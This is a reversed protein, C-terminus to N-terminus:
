LSKFWKIVSTTNKWQNLGSLERVNIVVKELLKKSILGVDPKTPNIMRVSPDNHFNPKHDKLTIFSQRESTCYVRDSIKLDEAISKDGITIDRVISEDAKKYDKHLSKLLLEDHVEKNLHFLNTTKDAAILLRNDDVIRQIDRKLTSQFHNSHNRFKISIILDYLKDKLVDLEECNPPAKTSNLGFTEKEHQKEIPNLFAYVRKMIYVNLM